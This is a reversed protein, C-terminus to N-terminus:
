SFLVIDKELTFEEAAVRVFFLVSPETVGLEPIHTVQTSPQM